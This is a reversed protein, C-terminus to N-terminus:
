DDPEETMLEYLKEYADAVEECNPVPLFTKDKQNAQQRWWEARDKVHEPTLNDNM